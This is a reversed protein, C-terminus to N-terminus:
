PSLFEMEPRWHLIGDVLRSIAAMEPYRWEEYSPIGPDIGRIFGWEEPLSVRSNERLIVHVPVAYGADPTSVPKRPQHDGIIITLGADSAHELLFGIASQLSYDISALYGQALENGSLWNNDYRRINERTYERGFNDFAWDPFYPPVNEFPVHSSVLLAMVFEKRNPELRRGIVDLFYQDPMAGFSVFPGEYEFDYRLFYEEFPFAKRWSEWSEYTGPAAYIRHYGASELLELLFAPEESAVIDDFMRQSSVQSATLLSSDALWSRGGFVPSRVFGSYVQFGRKHLADGIRDYSLAIAERYEDKLFLTSGYSEVVLFHIDTDAIGPFSYKEETSSYRNGVSRMYSGGTDSRSVALVRTSPVFIYALVACLFFLAPILVGGGSTVGPAPTQTVSYGGLELFLRTIFWGLLILISSLLAYTTLNLLDSSIDPEGLIMSFLGPILSADTLLSFEEMYLLRFFWQGASNLISLGFGAAAPIGLLYRRFRDPVGKPEPGLLLVIFGFSVLFPAPPVLIKWATGSSGGALHHGSLLFHLALMGFPVGIARLFNKSGEPSKEPMYM